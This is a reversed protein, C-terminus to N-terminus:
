EDSGESEEGLKTAIQKGLVFKLANYYGMGYATLNQINDWAIFDYKKYVELIEEETRMRKDGTLAM